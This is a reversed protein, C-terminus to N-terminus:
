SIPRVVKSRPWFAKSRRWIAKAVLVGAMSKNVKLMM